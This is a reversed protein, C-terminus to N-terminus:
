ASKILKANFFCARLWEMNGERYGGCPMAGKGRSLGSIKEFFIGTVGGKAATKAVRKAFFL